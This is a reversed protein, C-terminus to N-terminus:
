TVRSLLAPPHLCILLSYSLDTLLSFMTHNQMLFSKGARKAEIETSTDARNKLNFHNTPSCQNMLNKESVLHFIEKKVAM